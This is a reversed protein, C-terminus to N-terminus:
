REATAQKKDLETRIRGYLEAKIRDYRTPDLKTIEESRADALPWKGVVQWDRDVLMFSLDHSFRGKAAIDAPDKREGIRFFKLEDQLYAHTAKEDGGNVFWWNKTEAGLATAYQKLREVKDEAPDVSICVVQFDPNSRYTDYIAKLEAGNREACFPCVSYFEAVLWVKGKLESLKVKAGDQNVGELDHQIPFWEQVTSSGMEVLPGQDQVPMGKRLFMAMGIVGASILAVASYILTIQVKSNM